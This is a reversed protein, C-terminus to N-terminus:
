LEQTGVTMGLRVVIGVALPLSVEVFIAPMIHRGNRQPIRIRVLVPLVLVQLAVMVGYRLEPHM